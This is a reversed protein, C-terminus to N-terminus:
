QRVEIDYKVDLTPKFFPSLRYAQDSVDKARGFNGLKFYARALGALAVINRKEFKLSDEFNKKACEFDNKTTCIKGMLGYAVSDWKGIPLANLAAEAESVRNLNWLIYANLIHDVPHSFSPELRGEIYSKGEIKETGKYLSYGFLTPLNKDNPYNQKLFKIWSHIRNWTMADRYFSIDFIHNQTQDPDVRVAMELNKSVPQPQGVLHNMIALAILLEQKYIEFNQVHKLVLGQLVSAKSKFEEDTFINKGNTFLLEVNMLLIIGDFGGHVMSQSFSQEAPKFRNELFDVIGKNYFASVYQPSLKLAEEFKLNADALNYNKLQIVGILNMVQPLLPTRMQKLENLYKEAIITDSLQLSNYAYYYKVEDDASNKSILKEFLDKSKQFQGVQFDFIAQKKIEEYSQYAERKKFYFFGGISLVFVLIGIIPILRGRKLEKKVDRDNESAYSPIMPETKREEYSKKISETRTFHDKVNSAFKDNARFSVVADGVEQTIGDTDSNTFTKDGRLEEKNKLELIIKEFVGEDRVYKWRGFSKAIEDVLVVEKTNIREIVEDYTFPGKIEGASKILWEKAQAM